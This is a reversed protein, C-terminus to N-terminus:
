GGQKPKQGLIGAILEKIEKNSMLYKKIGMVRSSHINGPKTEPTKGLDAKKIGHFKEGKERVTDGGGNYLAVAKKEDGESLKLCLQYYTLSADVLDEPRYIPRGKKDVGIPKYNQLLAGHQGIDLQLPNHETFGEKVAMAAITAPDLGREAGKRMIWDIKQKPYFDGRDSTCGGKIFVFDNPANIAGTEHARREEWTKYPKQVPEPPVKKYRKAESEELNEPTAKELLDGWMSEGIEQM